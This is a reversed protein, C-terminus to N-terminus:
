KFQKIITILIDLQDSTLGSALKIIEQLKTPCTTGADFFEQPTVGLYECIYFFVTMSPYSIGNEINNIYSPSQGLSLSMDRASVGKQMRLEVLRKIFEEKEM